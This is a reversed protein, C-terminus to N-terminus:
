LENKQKPEPSPNKQGSGHPNFEVLHWVFPPLSGWMKLTVTQLERADMRQLWQEWSEKLKDAVVLVYKIGRQRIEEASDTTKVHLIRRSGFPKWLSTEPFDEASFGLVSADAPLSAIVPAFVEVRRSKTEYADMARSALRSSQLRSGYHQFFWGAPWLPRAPSVVLLLGALGCSFFAWAAVLSRRVLEAQAPSLLLGMSLLPYYPALIRDAGSLNLKTMMFLLSLWPAICVLRMVLDGPFARGTAQRATQARSRGGVCELGASDDGWVGTGGIGGSADRVLELAGGAAEFHRQLLAALSAPTMADAARNWASAFPFVPPALNDLTWTIGNAFLHLWVPGSGMLVDEAAAGTWDGCHVTNLVAM